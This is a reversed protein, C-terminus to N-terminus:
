RKNRIIADEIIMSYLDKIDLGHAEAQQPIISAKSMGPVTNIEILNLKDDSLMYDIRVVGKCNLYKYIKLSLDKCKLENEHSIRAPTIEDSKGNYKAEFDFFENETVIETIPFVIDEGLLTAVGCTIETGKLLAEIIVEDCEEFSKHIADLLDGEEKVKSIGFSSGGANPKVFCPLGLEKVIEDHYIKDDRRILISDAVDVDKNRLYVNCAYKNFTIASTLVDSTTYPIKVLDFYAQLKGDEGPTGHIAIFACDFNLIEGKVNVSFDDKNIDENNYGEDDLKWKNGVIHVILANYKETDLVSKIQKASQLSIVSESSDGGALIAVNLRM